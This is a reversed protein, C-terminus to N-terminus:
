DNTKVFYKQKYLEKDRIVVILKIEKAKEIGVVSTVEVSINTNRYQYQSDKYEKNVLMEEVLSHARIIAQSRELLASEKQVKVIMIFVISMTIMLISMGVLVEILTSSTLKHTGWRKMRIYNEYKIGLLM